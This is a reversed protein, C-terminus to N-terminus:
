QWMWLPTLEFGLIKMVRAAGENDLGCESMILEKQRVRDDTSRMDAILWGPIFVYRRNTEINM